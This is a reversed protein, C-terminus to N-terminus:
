NCIVFSYCCAANTSGSLLEGGCPPGYLSPYYQPCEELQQAGAQGGEGPLPGAGITGIAEEVEQLTHCHM